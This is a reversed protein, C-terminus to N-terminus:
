QRPLLFVRGQHELVVGDSRIEHVVPGEPTQAGERYKNMNIFVFREEPVESYVHIDLHLQAIQLTGQLRLEDITPVPAETVRSSTRPAPEPITRTPPVEIQPTSNTAETARKDIAVALQEEFDNTSAPAAAATPENSVEVAAEDDSSSTKWLFGILIAFNIALLFGLMRLWRLPNTNASGTPVSSCESSGQQQRENESKKLADLILSM